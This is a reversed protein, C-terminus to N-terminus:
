TSNKHETVKFKVKVNLYTIRKVKAKTEQHKKDVYLLQPKKLFAKLRFWFSNVFLYFDGYNLM